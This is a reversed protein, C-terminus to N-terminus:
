EGKIRRSYLHLCLLLAPLAYIQQLLFFGSGTEGGLILLPLLTPLMQSAELLVFVMGLTRGQTPIARWLWLVLMVVVVYGLTFFGPIGVWRLDWLLGGAFASWIGWLHDEDEETLLTFVVGLLFFEPVQMTGGLFVTLLDQLLWLLVFGMM